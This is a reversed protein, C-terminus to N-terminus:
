NRTAEHKVKRLEKATLKEELCKKCGQESNELYNILLNCGCM